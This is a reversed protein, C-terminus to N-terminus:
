EDCLGHHVIRIQSADRNRVVVAVHVDFTCPFIRFYHQLRLFHAHESVHVIVIQVNPERSSQVGYVLRKRISNIRQVCCYLRKRIAYYGWWLAERRTSILKLVVARM